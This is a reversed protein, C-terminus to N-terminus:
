RIQRIKRIQRIQHFRLFFTYKKMAGSGSWISCVYNYSRSRISCGSYPLTLYPFDWFSFYIFTFCHLAFHCICTLAFGHLHPLAFTFCPTKFLRLHLPTAGGRQCSPFEHGCLYKQSWMSFYTKYPLLLPLYLYNTTNRHFFVHQLTFTFTFSLLLLTFIRYNVM